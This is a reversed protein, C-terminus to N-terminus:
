DLATKQTVERAFAEKAIRTMRRNGKKEASFEGNGKTGLNRWQGEYWSKALTM